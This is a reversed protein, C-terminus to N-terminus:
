VPNNLSAETMMEVVKIVNAIDEPKTGNEFVKRETVAEYFKDWQYYSSSESEKIHREEVPENFGKAATYVRLNLGESLKSHNSLDENERWNLEREITGNEFNLQLMQVGRYPQMCWGGLMTFMSGSDFKVMMQALDATPRGTLMRSQMVDVKVPTGFLPILDNLGYIGLRLIPPAPCLAPDDYWSGDAKEISKYWGEWRGACLKGLNYKEIFEHITQIDLSPAINPSNLHVMRGLKDAKKLVRLADESNM